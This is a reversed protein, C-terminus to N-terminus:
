VVKKDLPSLSKGPKILSVKTYDKRSETLEILQLEKAVRAKEIKESPLENYFTDRFKIDRGLDSIIEEIAMINKEQGHAAGASRTISENMLTGGLDNAGAKLALKAGEEGLKVWSAQINDIYGNFIIRSVAHMLISERLTPGLRSEGKISIPSESAVFPLPVFETFGSTEKQLDRVAILHKAWNHYGDVHGFMITATSKLGQKHAVRMVELWQETNIKDACLIKRVDDDLVEAATGPLSKLGAKKLKTIYEDLELGLTSAGHWVELPSFAHIHMDPDAERVFECLDLYTQGTYSPHIGGQMCVEQAGREAAEVVRRQIETKSLDYPKGRLNDSLKGKSFACFKCKFYCINTYNINRNITFSVSNGVTKLRLEDAFKCVKEFDAGRAQFLRTIEDECLPDIMSKDLIAIIDASVKEQKHTSLDFYSPLSKTTGTLWSNERVLGEGDIHSLVKAHLRDDLYKSRQNIYHPYITLREHLYKGALLTEKALNELHPWPAEPNVFDPTVPSVGGWDNIGANVIQQLVGPSLNPPAQISMAPGFIIRAVAITWLLENLDPEPANVMKTNEKAKFNQIIIEQINGFREQIDRIALLSEVRELRTEGIGILIGTTFPINLEGALRLTQLRPAPLKDPSGFHPMGKECLRESVSELMIGMSASVPKMMRLEDATMCGANIHPLIGTQEFVHEAVHAVYELTTSFGMEDLADRATQYRLEPKEGLTFLAEKCGLESAARAQELVQDLPMYPQEIFKPTQAFTCYHCVDRCLHTLPFFVKKSYTVVNRFHQDRLSAALALLSKDNIDALAIAQQRSPVQYHDFDIHSVKISDDISDILKQTNTSNNAKYSKLDSPEDIDFMFEDVSLVKIAQQNKEALALHKTQSDEGFAFEPLDNHNFMLANTGKCTKDSFLFIGKQERFSCVSEDISKATLEPLDGHLVIIEKAGQELAYGVGQSIAQNLGEVGSEELLFQTHHEFSFTQLSEDNSVLVVQQISSSQNLATVVDKLMAESLLARHAVSLTSNLRQKSFYFAKVPIIAWM